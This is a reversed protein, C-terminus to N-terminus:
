SKIYAKYQPTQPSSAPVRSKDCPLKLRQKDSRHPTNPQLPSKDSRCITSRSILATGSACFPFPLIFILGAIPNYQRYQRCQDNRNYHNHNLPAFSAIAASSTGATRFAATALCFPIGFFLSCKASCPLMKEFFISGNECFSASFLIFIKIM